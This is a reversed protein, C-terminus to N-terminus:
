LGRFSFDGRFFSPVPLSYIIYKHKLFFHQNEPVSRLDKRFNGQFLSFRPVMTQMKLAKVESCHCFFQTPNAKSAHNRHTTPNNSRTPTLNLIKNTPITPTNTKKTTQKTQNTPQKTAQVKKKLLNPQIKRVWFFNIFDDAKEPTPQFLKRPLCFFVLATNVGGFNLM